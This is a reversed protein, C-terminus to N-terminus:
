VSKSQTLPKELVASHTVMLIVIDPSFNFITKNKTTGSVTGMCLDGSCTPFKTLDLTQFYTSKDLLRLPRLYVLKINLKIAM